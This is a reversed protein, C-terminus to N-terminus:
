LRNWGDTRPGLNLTLNVDKSTVWEIYIKNLSLVQLFRIYKICAWGDIDLSTIRELFEFIALFM